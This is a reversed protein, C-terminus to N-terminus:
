DHKGFNNMTNGANGMPEDFALVSNDDTSLPRQGIFVLFCSFLRLIVFRYTNRYFTLNFIMIKMIM